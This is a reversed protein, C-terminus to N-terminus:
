NGKLKTLWIVGVIMSVILATLVSLWFGLLIKHLMAHRQRKIGEIRRTEAAAEADRQQRAQVQFRQWDEWLGPRGHYVMMEKIEKQQERLQELAFFEELDSRKHEPKAEVKKQIENKANFWDIVSEAAAAIEGTNQLTKKIIAFAANAAALEALM